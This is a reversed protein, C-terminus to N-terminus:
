ARLCGGTPGRGRHAGGGGGGARVCPPSPFTHPPRAGASATSTCVHVHVRTEQLCRAPRRVGRRRGSLATGSPGPSAWERRRPGRCAARARVSAPAEPCARAPACTPRDGGPPAAGASRARTGLQMGRRLAAAAGAEARLRGSVCARLARVSMCTPHMICARVHTPAQTPGGSLPGARPRESPTDVRKVFARPADRWTVIRPPPM